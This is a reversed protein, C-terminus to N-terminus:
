ETRTTALSYAAPEFWSPETPEMKSLAMWLMDEPLGVLRPHTESLWAEFTAPDATRAALALKAQGTRDRSGRRGPTVQGQEAAVQILYAFREFPYMPHNCISGRLAQLREMNETELKEELARVLWLPCNPHTVVKQVLETTLMNPPTSLMKALAEVTVDPRGAMLEMTSVAAIEAFLVQVDRPILFPRHTLLYQGYLGPAPKASLWARLDDDTVDDSMLLDGLLTTNEQEVATLDHRAPADMVTM